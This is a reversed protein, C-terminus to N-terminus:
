DNNYEEKKQEIKRYEEMQQNMKYEDKLEIIRTIFEFLKVEVPITFFGLLYCLYIFDEHVTTFLSIIFYIINGNIFISVLIILVGVIAGIDEENENYLKRLIYKIMKMM